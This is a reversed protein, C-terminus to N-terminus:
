VSPVSTDYLEVSPKKLLGPILTTGKEFTIFQLGKKLRTVCYTIM